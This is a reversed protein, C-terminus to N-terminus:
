VLLHRLLHLPVCHSMPLVSLVRPHTQHSCVPFSLPCDKAKPQLLLSLIVSTIFSQTHFLHSLRPQLAPFMLGSGTSNPSNVLLSLVIGSPSFFFYMGVSLVWVVPQFGDGLIKTEM